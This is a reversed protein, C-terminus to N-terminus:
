QFLSAYAANNNADGDPDPLMSFDAFPVAAVNDKTNNNIQNIVFSTFNAPPPTMADPTGGGGGDPRKPGADPAAGTNDGCASAAAALVLSCVLLWSKQGRM